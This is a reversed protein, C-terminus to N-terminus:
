PNPSRSVSGNTDSRAISIICGPDNSSQCVSKAPGGQAGQAQVEPYMKKTSEHYAEQDMIQTKPHKGLIPIFGTQIDSFYLAYNKYAIERDFKQRLCEDIGFRPKDAARLMAGALQKEFEINQRYVHQGLNLYNLRTIDGFPPPIIEIRENGYFEYSSGVDTIVCPLGNAMAEGLSLSWGEWYSPLMFVDAAHYYKAVSRDYGAFIVSDQIGLTVIRREIERQYAPEMNSGLLVLRASPKTRLVESFANVLALQAKTALISAVNLFVPSKSDVHWNNRLDERNSKFNVHDVSNPDIGNPIVKMKLVDLGLAMDAYRAATASVCIYGTTYSDAYRYKATLQPDFWVYSNHITQLFPINLAACIEAGYVSFHANVVSVGTTKLYAEYAAQTPPRGFSIVKINKERAKAAADGEKGLIAISVHTGLKMLCLALDIVVNEM